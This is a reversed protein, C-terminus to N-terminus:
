LYKDYILICIPVNINNEKINLHAYNIKFHNRQFLMNQWKKASREHLYLHENKLISIWYSGFIYLINVILAMKQYTIHLKKYKSHITKNLIYYLPLIVFCIYM